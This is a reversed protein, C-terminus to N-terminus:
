FVIFIVLLGMIISRYINRHNRRKKRSMRSPTSEYQNM